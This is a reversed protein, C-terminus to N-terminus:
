KRASYIVVDLDGAGSGNAASGLRDWATHREYQEFEVSPALGRIGNPVRALGTVFQPAALCPGM